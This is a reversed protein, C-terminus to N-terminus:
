SQLTSLQDGPLIPLILLDRVDGVNFPHPIISSPHFIAKDKMREFLAEGRCCMM